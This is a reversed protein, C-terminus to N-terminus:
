DEINQASLYCSSAPVTLLFIPAATWGDMQQETGNEGGKQTRRETVCLGMETKIIEGRGETETNM